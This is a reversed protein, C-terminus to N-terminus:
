LQGGIGVQVDIVREAGSMACVRRSLAHGLEELGAHSAEQQLLHTTCLAKPHQQQQHQTHQHFDGKKPFFIARFNQGITTHLTSSGECLCM